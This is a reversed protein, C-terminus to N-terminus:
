KGRGRGMKNKWQYIPTVPAQNWQLPLERISPAPKSAMAYSELKDLSLSQWFFFGRSM